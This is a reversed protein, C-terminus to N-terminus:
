QVSFLNMNGAMHEQMLLIKGSQLAERVADLTLADDLNIYSSSGEESDIITL